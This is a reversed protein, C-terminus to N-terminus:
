RSVALCSVPVPEILQYKADKIIHVLPSYVIELNGLPYFSPDDAQFYNTPDEIRNKKEHRLVM